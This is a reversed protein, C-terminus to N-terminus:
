NDNSNMDLGTQNYLSHLTRLCLLFVNYTVHLSFHAVIHGIVIVTFWAYMCLLNYVCAKSGVRVGNWWSPHMSSLTHEVQIFDGSYTLVHVFPYLIELTCFDKQHCSTNLTWTNKRSASAHCLVDGMEPALPWLFM